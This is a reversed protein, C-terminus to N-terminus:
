VLWSLTTLNGRCDDGAAAAAAAVVRDDDDDGDGDGDVAAAVRATLDGGAGERGAM